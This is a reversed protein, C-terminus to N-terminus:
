MIARNRLDLPEKGRRFVALLEDVEGISLFDPLARWLRPGEMIETVNKALIKELYFYRFLVKVAVLKRAITPSEQGNAQCEELFDLIDDRKVDEPANIGVSVMFDAFATVDSTYGEITGKALGRELLLYAKFDSIYDQWNM